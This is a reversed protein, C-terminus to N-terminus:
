ESLDLQLNQAYQNVDGWFVDFNAENKLYDTLYEKEEERPELQTCVGRKTSRESTRILGAYLARFALSSLSFGLLILDRGLAQRVLPDVRDIANNGKGQCTNVLFELHDDETLVLSDPRSDLGHLHYVLPEGLCPSYATNMPQIDDLSKNWRCLETRPKKDAARLADEMFTYPCTTLYTRVPLYALVMLPNKLGGDLRPFGLRKAFESVYLNDIDERVEALADRGADQALRSILNKVWNLYEFKLDQNDMHKKLQRYKAVKGLNDRDPMPYQVIEAAYGAVLPAYDGIALNVMAEDSIVPVVRGAKVRQNFSVQSLDVSPSSPERILPM